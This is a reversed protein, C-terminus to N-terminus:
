NKIVKIEDTIKIPQNNDDDHNNIIHISTRERLPTIINQHKM